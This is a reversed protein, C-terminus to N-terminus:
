VWLLEPLKWFVVPFVASSKDSSRTQIALRLPNRVVVSTELPPRLSYTQMFGERIDGTAVADGESPKATSIM